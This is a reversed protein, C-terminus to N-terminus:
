GYVSRLETIEERRSEEVAKDSDPKSLTIHAHSYPLGSFRFIMEIQSRSMPQDRDAILESLYLTADNDGHEVYHREHLDLAKLVFDKGPFAHMIIRLRQLESEKEEIEKLVEVVSFASNM